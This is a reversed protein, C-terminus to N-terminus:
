RAHGSAPPPSAQLEEMARRSIIIRKPYVLESLKGGLAGKQRQHLVFPGLRGGPSDLWIPLGMVEGTIESGDALHFRWALRRLPYSEGSYIREPSGMEKWRWQLEMKEEEVVAQISLVAPLPIRRWRQQSALYVPIADQRAV